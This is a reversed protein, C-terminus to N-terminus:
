VLAKTAPARGLGLRDLIEPRRDLALRLKKARAADVTTLGHADAFHEIQALANVVLRANGNAEGHVREILDEALDVEAITKILTRTDDLDLRKFEVVQSCRSVFQEQEALSALKIVFNKMGILIVSTSALDHLERIVDLLETKRVIHDAEDFVIPTAEAGRAIAEVIMKVTDTNDRRPNLRLEECLSQLMSRPKNWTASARVYVANHMIAWNSVTATKGFGAEGFAIMIKPTNVSADLLARGAIAFNEVNKIKAHLPKM